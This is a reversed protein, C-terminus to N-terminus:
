YALTFAVGTGNQGVVIPAITWAAKAGDGGIDGHRYRRLATRAGQPAVFIRLETVLEALATNLIANRWHGYGLGLTLGSAVNFVLPVVHYLASRRKTEDKAVGLLVREREQVEACPSLGAPVSTKVRLPNTVSLFLLGGAAAAAFYRSVRVDYSALAGWVLNGALGIAGATAFGVNWFMADRREEELFERM